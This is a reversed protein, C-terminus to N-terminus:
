EMDGRRESMSGWRVKVSGNRSIVPGRIWMLSNSTLTPLRGCLYSAWKVSLNLDCAQFTTLLETPGEILEWLLLLEKQRDPLGAARKNFEATYMAEPDDAVMGRYPMPM